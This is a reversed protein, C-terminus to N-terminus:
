SPKGGSEGALLRDLKDCQSAFGEEFGMAVLKRLDDVSTFKLTSTVRTEAGDEDFEIRVRTAPLAASKGGQEDSFYDDYEFSVGDTIARYEVRSWYKAGDPGTMYYHWVGGVRFDFTKITTPFHEPGWWLEIMERRTFYDWVVNRPARFRRQITLTLNAEDVTKEYKSM